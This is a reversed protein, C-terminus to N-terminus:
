IIRQLISSNLNHLVGSLLFRKYQLGRQVSESHISPKIQIPTGAKQVASHWWEPRGWLPGKFANNQAQSACQEGAPRPGVKSHRICIHPWLISPFFAKGDGSLGTPVEVRTFLYAPPVKSGESALSPLAVFAAKLHQQLRDEPPVAQTRM